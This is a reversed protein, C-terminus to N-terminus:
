IEEKEPEEKDPEEDSDEFDDDMVEESDEDVSEELEEESKDKEEMKVLKNTEKILLPGYDDFYSPPLNDMIERPSTNLLFLNRLANLAFPQYVGKM